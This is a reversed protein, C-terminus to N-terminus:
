GLLERSMGAKANDMPNRRRRPCILRVVSYMGLTLAAEAKAVAGM